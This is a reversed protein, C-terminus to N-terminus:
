FFAKPANSLNPMELTLPRFSILNYFLNFNYLVFFPLQRILEKDFLKSVNFVNFIKCFKPKNYFSKKIM